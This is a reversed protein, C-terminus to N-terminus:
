LPVKEGHPLFTGAPCWGLIEFDRPFLSRKFYLTLGKSICLQTIFFEHKVCKGKFPVEDKSHSLMLMRFTNFSTNASTLLLEINSTFILM